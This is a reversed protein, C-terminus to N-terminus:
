SFNCCKRVKKLAPGGMWVPFALLGALTCNMQTSSTFLMQFINPDFFQDVQLTLVLITEEPGGGPETYAM